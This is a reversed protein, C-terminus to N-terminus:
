KAVIITYVPRASPMTEPAACVVACVTRGASSIMRVRGSTSVTELTNRMHRDSWTRANPSQATTGSGVASCSASMAREEASVAERNPTSGRTARSDYEVPSEPVPASTSLTRSAVAITRDRIASAAGPSGTASRTTSPGRCNSAATSGV